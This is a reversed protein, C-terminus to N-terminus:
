EFRGYKIAVYASNLLIAQHATLRTTSLKIWFM